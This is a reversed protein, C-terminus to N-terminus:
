QEQGFRARRVRHECGQRGPSEVRQICTWGFQDTDLYSGIDDGHVDDLEIDMVREPIEGLESGGIFPARDHHQGLRTREAQSCRSRGAVNLERMGDVPM